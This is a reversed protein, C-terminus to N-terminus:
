DFMFTQNYNCKPLDQIIFTLGTNPCLHLLHDYIMMMIIIIIILQLMALVLSLALPLHKQMRQIIKM